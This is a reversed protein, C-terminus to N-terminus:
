NYKRLLMEKSEKIPIAYIYGKGFDIFERLFQFEKDFEEMTCQRYEVNKIGNKTITVTEM